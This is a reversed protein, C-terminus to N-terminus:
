SIPTYGGYFVITIKEGLSTDVKCEMKAENYSTFVIQSYPAHKTIYDALLQFDEADMKFIM